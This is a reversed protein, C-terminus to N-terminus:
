DWAQFMKSIKRCRDRLRGAEAQVREKGEGAEGCKDQEEQEGTKILNYGTGGTRRDQATRIRDRRAM